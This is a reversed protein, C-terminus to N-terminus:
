GTFQWVLPQSATQGQVTNDANADLTVSFAMSVSNVGGKPPLCGPTRLDKAAAAIATLTQLNYATYATGAVGGTFPTCVLTLKLSSCINGTAGTIGGTKTCTGPTLTFATADTTGTNSIRVTTTPSTAGPLLAAGGYKNYASCTSSNATGDTSTCGTATTGSSDTEKMVLTGAGATNTDNTVTATFASFTGTAGLGLVASCLLGLGLALPTFRVRRASKDETTM